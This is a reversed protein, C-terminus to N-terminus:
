YIQWVRPFQDDYSKIIEGCNMCFDNGDDDIGLETKDTCGKKHPM